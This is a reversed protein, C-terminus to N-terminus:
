EGVAADTEVGAAYIANEVVERDAEIGERGCAVHYNGLATMVGARYKAIDGGIEGRECRLANTSTLRLTAACQAASRPRTVAAQVPVARPATQVAPTVVQPAQPAPAAPAATQQAFPGPQAVPLEDDWCVFYAPTTAVGSACATSLAMARESSTAWIHNGNARSAWYGNMLLAFGKQPFGNPTTLIVPRTAFMHSSRTSNTNVNTNTNWVARTTM